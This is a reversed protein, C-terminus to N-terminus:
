PRGEVAITWREAMAMPLGPWPVTGNDILKAQAHMTMGLLHVWDPGNWGHRGTLLALGVPGFRWRSGHDVPEMIM